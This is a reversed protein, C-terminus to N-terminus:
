EVNDNDDEKGCENENSTVYSDNSDDFDHDEESGDANSTDDSDDNGSGPAETDNVTAPENSDQQKCGKRQPYKVNWEELQTQLIRRTQEDMVDNFFKTKASKPNPYMFTDYPKKEYDEVGRKAQVQSLFPLTSQRMRKAPQECNISSGVYSTRKANQEVRFTSICDLLYLQDGFSSIGMKSLHEESKILCLRELTNVNHAKFNDKFQSFGHYDLWKYLEKETASVLLDSEPTTCSEAM